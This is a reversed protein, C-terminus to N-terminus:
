KKKSKVIIDPIDMVVYDYQPIYFGESIRFARSLKQERRVQSLSLCVPLRGSRQGAFCIQGDFGAPLGDLTHVYVKM